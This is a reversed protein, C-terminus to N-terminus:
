REAGAAGQDSAAASAAAVDIVMVGPGMAVEAWTAGGDATALLADRGAVIWGHRSDSFSIARLPQDTGSRQERWTRGGDSTAVILGDQGAAWVHRSDTCAVAHLPRRAEHEVKWTAGGDRTALIVGGEARSATGHLTGAVWGHRDDAFAVRGLRMTESDSRYQTRWSRGGDTTAVIYGPWPYDGGADEGVAWGHMPDPFSISHLAGRGPVAHVTWTVGGDDTAAIGPLGEERRGAVWAHSADSCTIANLLGMGGVRSSSWTVGADDTALVMVEFRGVLWGVQPDSFAVRWPLIFGGPHKAAQTAWSAGGDRSTVLHGHAELAAAFQGPSAALPPRPEIRYSPARNAAFVLTAIVLLSIAGLAAALAPMRRGQGRRMMQVIGLVLGAVTLLLWTVMGLGILSDSLRSFDWDWLRIVSVLAAAFPVALVVGGLAAVLAVVSLPSVAAKSDEGRQTVPKEAHVQV